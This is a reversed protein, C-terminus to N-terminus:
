AVDGQFLSQAVFVIDGRDCCRPRDQPGLSSVGAFGFDARASGGRCTWFVTQKPNVGLVQIPLIQNRVPVSVAFTVVLELDTGNIAVPKRSSQHTEDCPCDTPVLIVWRGGRQKVVTSLKLSLGGLFHLLIVTAAPPNTVRPHQIGAGRKGARDGM